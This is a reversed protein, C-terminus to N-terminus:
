INQVKEQSVLALFSKYPHLISRYMGEARLRFAKHTTLPWESYNLMLTLISVELYESANHVCIEANMASHLHMEEEKNLGIANSISFTYVSTPKVNGNIIKSLQSESIQALHSVQKQPTNRESLIEGVLDGYVGKLDDCELKKKQLENRENKIQDQTKM